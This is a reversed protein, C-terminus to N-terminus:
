KLITNVSILCDIPSVACSSSEVNDNPLFTKWFGSLTNFSFFGWADAMKLAITM